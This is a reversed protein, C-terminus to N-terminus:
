SQPPPADPEKPSPKAPLEKPGPPTGGAMKSAVRLAQKRRIRDYEEQSLEGREFMKRYNVFQDLEAPSQDAFQRKRWRGLWAFVAAAALLTVVLMGVQWLFDPDKLIDSEKKAVAVLPAFM